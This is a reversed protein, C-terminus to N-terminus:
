PRPKDSSRRHCVHHHHAQAGRGRHEARRRGLSITLRNAQRATGAAPARGAPSRPARCPNSGAAPSSPTPWTAPPSRARRRRGSRPRPAARGWRRDPAAPRRPRPHEPREVEPGPPQEQAPRVTARPHCAQAAFGVRITPAPSTPACTSRRRSAWGSSPRSGRRSDRRRGAEPRRPARACPAPAPCGASRASTARSVPASCTTSPKLEVGSAASIGSTRSHSASPRLTESTGRSNSLTLTCTESSCRPPRGSNPRCAISGLPQCNVMLCTSSRSAGRRQQQEQEGSNIPRASATRSDEGPGIMNRWRRMPRSPRSKSSSLNREIRGTSVMASRVVAAVEHREM